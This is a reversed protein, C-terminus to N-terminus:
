KELKKTTKLPVFRVPLIHKSQIPKDKDFNLLEEVSRKAIGEIDQVITSITLTQNEYSKAGDFGVLQVDDPIKWKLDSFANLVYEAYRDTAAFIGDYTCGNEYKEHLFAKIREQFNYSDGTDQYVEYDLKAYNCYDIFGNKREFLGLNSSIERLIFLPKKVGRQHLAQTALYAGQFNDSTVFPVTQNFYREISVIPLGSTIYPEINSYSITIIGKVKEEKAMQVYDLERNYDDQSACLLMKMNNKKLEQQIYNTLEAFFPNWITPLILAITDSANKKLMRAAQNPVYNLDKIAKEIRKASEDNVKVGNIYNSVTGRSVKALKAVDNMNAM